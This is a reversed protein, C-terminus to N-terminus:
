SAVEIQMNSRGDVWASMGPEVVTTTDPQEIVAPGTFRMGPLLDERAYIPTDHWRGGFYVERRTRAPALERGPPDAAADLEAQRTGRASSRINVVLVPIDGLTTGFEQQYAAQFAKTLEPMDWAPDIRVRLRHVQGLYAMDAFHLTEVRSFRVGDSALEAEGQARQAALM